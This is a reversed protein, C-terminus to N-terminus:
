LMAETWSFAQVKRYGEGELIRALLRNIDTEDEVIMIIHQM